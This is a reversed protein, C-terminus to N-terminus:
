DIIMRQKGFTMGKQSAVQNTGMQLGIVGEGAKMQEETFHRVNADSEKPGITPGNFGKTRAKRGLAQITNVVQHMNQGEFLDVTQFLDTKVLGYNECATLFNGINEMLKFAMKGENIKKISGPQLKNMLKCLIIGDKLVKQLGDAGLSGGGQSLKEGTVAEIWGVVEQEVNEDYKGAMKRQLEGSLGYGSPRNAM